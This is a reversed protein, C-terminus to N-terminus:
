SAPTVPFPDYLAPNPATYPAWFFDTAAWGDDFRVIVVRIVGRVLRSTALFTKYSRTM